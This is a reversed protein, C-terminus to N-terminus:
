LTADELLKQKYMREFLEMRVTMINELLKSASEYKVCDLLAKAHIHPYSHLTSNKGSYYMKQTLAKSLDRCCTWSEISNRNEVFFWKSCFDINWYDSIIVDTVVQGLGIKVNDNKRSTLKLISKEASSVLPDIVWAVDDDGSAAVFAKGNNKVWPERIGAQELYFYM